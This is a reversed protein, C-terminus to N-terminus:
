QPKLLARARNFRQDVFGKRGIGYKTANVFDEDGRLKAIQERSLRWVDTSEASFADVCSARFVAEFVAISFRRADKAQFDESSLESAADFFAGFLRRVYEIQQPQQIKCRKAFVDLFRGMPAAYSNGSAVMAFSRLLIEQDKDNLDPQPQGLLRRWCPNLNVQALMEMFGSHYLSARLEQPRLNVGGSNLRTFIEIVSTDNEEEPANQKVIVNRITRLTFTTKDDGLTDYNKLHFRSNQRPERGLLELNFNQFYTDDALVGEPLGGHEFIIRRIEPRKEVRPFRKKVFYYVSMLRQQGDIVLFSNRAEEYLFIQPVPLGILLSEILKSARKIDWVYNRQFGPIKVPGSDIFDVITRINFDNPTASIDYDKFSADYSDSGDDTFWSQSVTLASVEQWESPGTTEIGTEM